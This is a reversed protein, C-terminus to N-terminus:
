GENPVIPRVAAPATRGSEHVGDNAGRGM